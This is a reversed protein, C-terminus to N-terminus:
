RKRKKATKANTKTRQGRVPLGRKHRLGEYNGKAKKIDINSKEEAKLPGEVKINSDIYVNLDTAEKENLMSVYKNSDIKCAKLVSFVNNKGIGYISQLAVFIKKKEKLSVGCIRIDVSM